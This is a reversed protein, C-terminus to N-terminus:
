RGSARNTKKGQRGDVGRTKNDDNKADQPIYPPSRLGYLVLYLCSEISQSQNAQWIVWFPLRKTSGALIMRRNQHPWPHPTSTSDKGYILLAALLIRRRRVAYSDTVLLMFTHYYYSFVTRTAHQDHRIIIILRCNVLLWFFSFFYFVRDCQLWM